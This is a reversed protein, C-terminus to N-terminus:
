EPNTAKLWDYRKEGHCTKRCSGGRKDQQYHLKLIWGRPGYPVGNRIQFSQESAHVEHCARCTRGRKPKKVHVYHLNRKGDRFRTASTTREATVLEEEHCGFCLAYERPDFSAYFRAPYPEVLLRFNDGGHTKHCASCDKEAVPSHHVKNKALLQKFNTLTKGDQDKVGDKGHCSVCLDYPLMRLLKQVNAVHPDHCSACGAGQSLAGHQVDAQMLRAIKTHCNTCLRDPKGLLLKAFRSNHPNHCAACDKQAPPHKVQGQSMSTGLDEHCSLCNEAVPRIAPGPKNASGGDHCLGCEGAEFPAHSSVAQKPPVPRASLKKPPTPKPPTSGGPGAAVLAFPAAVLLTALKKM